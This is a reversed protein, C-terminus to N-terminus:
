MGAHYICFKLTKMVGFGTLESRSVQVLISESAKLILEMVTRMYFPSPVKMKVGVQSGVVRSGKISMVSM